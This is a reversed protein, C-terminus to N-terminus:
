RIGKPLYSSLFNNNDIEAVRTKVKNPAGTDTYPHDVGIPIEESFDRIFANQLTVYTAMAVSFLPRSFSM